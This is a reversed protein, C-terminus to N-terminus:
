PFFCVAEEALPDLPACTKPALPSFYVPTYETDLWAKPGTSKQRSLLGHKGLAKGHVGNTNM